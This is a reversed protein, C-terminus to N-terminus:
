CRLSGGVAAVGRGAERWRDTLQLSAAVGRQVLRIREPGGLGPVGRHVASGAGRTRSGAELWGGFLGGGHGCGFRVRAGEARLSTGGPTYGLQSSSWQRRLADRDTSALPKGRDLLEAADGSACAVAGLAEECIRRHGNDKAGTTFSWRFFKPEEACHIHLRYGHPDITQLFWWIACSANRMFKGGKLSGHPLLRAVASRGGTLAGASRFQSAM